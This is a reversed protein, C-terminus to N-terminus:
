APEPPRIPMTLVSFTGTDASRLTIPALPDFAEIVLDPGITAAVAEAFFRPDVAMELPAGPWSGAVWARQDLAEFLLRDAEFRLRLWPGDLPLRALAQEVDDRALAIQHAAPMGALIREYDPFGQGPGGATVARGDITVTIVGQENQSLVLTGATVLEGCLARVQEAEIVGRIAISGLEEPVLDRIALRYSDTAVLRLSDDKTEVWVAGLEARMAPDAVAFSVQGLGSAFAAPALSCWRAGAAGTTKDLDSRLQSVAGEVASARRRFSAVHRELLTRRQSPSAALYERLMGVPMEAGRLRRVLLARELQGTGYYRYGTDADVLQPRLLQNQDYFRLASRSLAGSRSSGLRLCSSWPRYCVGEVLKFTLCV